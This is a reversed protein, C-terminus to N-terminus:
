PTFPQCIDGYQKEYQQAQGRNVVTAITTLVGDTYNCYYRQPAAFAEPLAFAVMVAAVALVLIFRKM